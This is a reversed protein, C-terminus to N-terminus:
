KKKLFEQIPGFLKMMEAAAEEVAKKLEAPGAGVPMDGLNDPVKMEDHLKGCWPCYWKKKDEPADGISWWKECADCQFHSLHEITRNM